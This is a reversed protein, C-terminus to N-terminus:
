VLRIVREITGRVSIDDLLTVRSEGTAAALHLLGEADREARRVVARGEIVAPLLADEEVPTEARVVLYDGDRIQEALLGDGRWRVVFDGRQM